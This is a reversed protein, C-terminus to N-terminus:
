IVLGWCPSHLMQMAATQALAAALGPQRAMMLVMLPKSTPHNMSPLMMLHRFFLTSFIYVTSFIDRVMAAAWTKLQLINLQMHEGTPTVYCNGVERHEGQHTACKCRKKLDIIHRGHLQAQEDFNVVQPVQWFSNSFYGGVCQIVSKLVTSLSMKVLALSLM